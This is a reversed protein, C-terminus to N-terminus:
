LVVCGGCVKASVLSNGLSLSVPCRSLACSFFPSTLQFRGIDRKPGRLRRDALGSDPLQSFEGERESKWVRGIGSADVKVVYLDAYWGVWVSRVETM